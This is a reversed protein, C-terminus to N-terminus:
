NWWAMESKMKVGILHFFCCVNWRNQFQWLKSIPDFDNEMHFSDPSEVRRKLPQITVRVENHILKDYSTLGPSKLIEIQQILVSVPKHTMVQEFKIENM